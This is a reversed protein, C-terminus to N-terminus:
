GGAERGGVGTRGASYVNLSEARLEPHLRMRTAERGLIARQAQWLSEDEQQASAGSTWGAASLSLSVGVTQVRLIYSEGGCDM